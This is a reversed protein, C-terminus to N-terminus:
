AAAHTAAVWLLAIDAHTMTIEEFHTSPHADLGIRPPLARLRCAARPRTL